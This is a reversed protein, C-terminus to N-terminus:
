HNLRGQGKMIVPSPQRFRRNVKRAQNCVLFLPCKVLIPQSLRLMM